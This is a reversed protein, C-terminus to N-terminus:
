VSDGVPQSLDLLCDWDRHDTQRESETALVANFYANLNRYVYKSLLKCM